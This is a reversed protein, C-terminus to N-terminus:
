NGGAHGADLGTDADAQAGKARCSRGPPAMASHQAAHCMKRAIACWRAVIASVKVPVMRGQRYEFGVVAPPAHIGLM